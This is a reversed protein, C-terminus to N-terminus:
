AERAAADAVGGIPLKVTFTTGRGPESQVDIAGGHETVVAHVVALGLGTGGEGRRTTFFPEFLQARHDPAIGVGTDRVRLRVAALSRGSATVLTDSALEIRIEGGAATAHLSNTVLNLVLQQLQDGDATIAPLDDPCHVTLTVGRRRAEYQILDLVESVTAPLHIASLQVRRQRAFRLLQEVIRAIRESQAVLIQGYRRMEVPDHVRTVLARARGNLIQLPTGIEHALGASLQGITVLKDAEQLTHQLHRRTEAAEELRQRAHHLETVMSNFARALDGMEDQRDISLASDLDGGRVLQMAAAMRTLPRGIYITGLVLGLVTSTLVFLGVSLAIGSRMDHLDAWLSKLDRGIVVVGDVSGDDNMLPLALVLRRPARPPDYRTAAQQRAIADQAAADAVDDAVLPERTALIARGHPDYVIMEVTHEIRALTRIVEDIDEIQHDRLANEASVQVSRGILRTEREVAEFLAAREEHMLYVGYGGFLLIGAGAIALTMKTSIRM